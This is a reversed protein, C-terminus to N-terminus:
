SITYNGSSFNVIYSKFRTTGGSTYKYCPHEIASIAVEGEEGISVSAVRFMRAASSATGIVFLSNRYNGVLSANV